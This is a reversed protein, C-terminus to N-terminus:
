CGSCPHSTSINPSPATRSVIAFVIGAFAGISRMVVPWDTEAANAEKAATAGSAGDWVGDFWPLLIGLIVGSIGWFVLAAWDYDRGVIGDMQLTALGPGDQLRSVLVGYGLGLGFLLTARLALAVMVGASNPRPRFSATTQTSRMRLLASRDRGLKYSGNDGGDDGEGDVSPRKAPTEAGTGWPTGPEDRDHYAEFGRASTAPSYIGFLTSATLNLMSAARSVTEEPSAGAATTSLLSANFGPSPPPSDKEPPTLGSVNLDFPRHPIPRYLPPGAGGSASGGTSM